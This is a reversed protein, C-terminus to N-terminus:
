QSLADLRRRFGRDGMLRDIEKAISRRDDTIARQIRRRAGPGFADPNESFTQIVQLVERNGTEDSDVLERMLSQLSGRPIATLADAVSPLNRQLTGGVRGGGLMAALAGLTAVPIIKKIATEGSEILFDKGGPTSEKLLQVAIASMAVASFFQGKTGGFFEDGLRLALSTGAQQGAALAMGTVPDDDNLAAVVAGEAGAEGVRIGGRKLSQALKTDVIDDLVRRAGTRLPKPPRLPARRAAARIPTRGALITGADGVAEGVTSAVPQAERMRADLDAVDGRERAFREGIGTLDGESVAGVGTRAAALVDDATPAPIAGSVSRTINQRTEGPPVIGGALTGAVASPAGLLNDVLRGLAARSFAAMAGPVDGTEDTAQGPPPASQQQRRRLLENRFPNGSSTDGGRRRELEAAFPNGNAM